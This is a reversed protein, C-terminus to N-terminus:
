WSPDPDFTLLEPRVRSIYDALSKEKEALVIGRAVKNNLIAAMEEMSMESVQKRTVPQTANAQANNSNYLADDNVRANNPEVTKPSNFFETGSQEPKRQKIQEANKSAWRGQEKGITKFRFSSVEGSERLWQTIKSDIQDYQEPALPNSLSMANFMMSLMYEIKQHNREMENNIRDVEKSLLDVRQPLSEENFYSELIDNILGTRTGYGKEEKVADVKELLGSSLNLHVRVKEKEDTM